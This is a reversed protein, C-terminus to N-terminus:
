IINIKFNRDVNINARIKGFGGRPHQTNTECVM